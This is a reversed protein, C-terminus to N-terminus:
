EDDDMLAILRSLQTVRELFYTQGQATIQIVDMSRPQGEQTTLTVYGSDVLAKIAPNLVAMPTKLTGAVVEMRENHCNSLFALVSLAIRQDGDLPRM